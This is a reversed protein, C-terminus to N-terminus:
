FIIALRIIAIDSRNITMTESKELELTITEDNYDKLIGIIEKQKNIAKYLKVEVAKDLSRKFDKEKKLPRDLGPSSVELIYQTSIVDNEDLKIELARSVIECDDINIGEAKDIYVRLYWTSGEKIYEVDVLEYHHEEMIPELYNSTEQEIKEKLSM